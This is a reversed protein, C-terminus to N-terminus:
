KLRLFCTGIGVCWHLIRIATVSPHCFDHMDFNPDGAASFIFLFTVSFHYYDRPPRWLTLHHCISAFVNPHRIQKIRWMNATAGDFISSYEHLNINTFNGLTYFLSSLSLTSLTIVYSFSTSSRRTTNTPTPARRRWTCQRRAIGSPADYRM